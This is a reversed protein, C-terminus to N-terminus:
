ANEQKLPLKGRYPEVAIHGDTLTAVEPNFGRGTKDPHAGPLVGIVKGIRLQTPRLDFALIIANDDHTGAQAMGKLSGLVVINGGAIVQAGPNVDGFIQVDGGFRVCTGSRLTHHVTLTRRGSEEDSEGGPEGVIDTSVDETQFSPSSLDFVDPDATFASPGTGMDNPLPATEPDAATPALTLKLKLDREAMRQLSIAECQLGVIEIEFETKALHIIRRIELLDLDRQGVDLRVRAGRFRGPAEQLLDRLAFRLADFGLAPPLTLVLLGGAACRLQLPSPSVTRLLAPESMVIHAPLPSPPGRPPATCVPIDASPLTLTGRQMLTICPGHQCPLLNKRDPGDAMTGAAGGLDM